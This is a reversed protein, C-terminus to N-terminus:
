GGASASAPQPQKRGSRVLNVLSCHPSARWRWQLDNLTRFLAPRLGKTLTCDPSQNLRASHKQRQIFGGGDRPDVRSPKLAWGACALRANEKTGSPSIIIASHLGGVADAAETERSPVLAAQDLAVGPEDAREDAYGRDCGAHLFQAKAPRDYPQEDVDGDNQGRPRDSDVAQHPVLLDQGLGLPEALVGGAARAAGVGAELQDRGRLNTAALAVVLPAENFLRRM